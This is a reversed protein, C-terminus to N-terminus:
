TPQCRDPYHDEGTVALNETGTCIQYLSDSERDVVYTKRVGDKAPQFSVISAKTYLCGAILLLQYRHRM